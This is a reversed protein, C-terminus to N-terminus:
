RAKCSRTEALEKKLADIQKQQEQIAALLMSAYGYEDVHTQDGAVAPSTSPQDDIIFGLHKKHDEGEGKYRYQTLKTSLAESALEAREADGVYVIDKKFERRSVLGNDCYLYNPHDTCTAMSGECFCPAMCACSPSGGCSPPIPTCGLDMALPGSVKLCFTGSPCPSTCAKHPPTCVGADGGAESSGVDAGEGDFIVVDAFGGEGSGSEVGGGTDASGSDVTGTDVGTDGGGSDSGTDGGGTDHGADHGADHGTNTVVDMGGGSDTEGPGDMGSSGDPGGDGISSSGGGCSAAVAICTVCSILVGLTRM